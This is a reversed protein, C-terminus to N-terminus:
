RFIGYKAPSHGTPVNGWIWLSTLKRTPIKKGEKNVQFMPGRNGSMRSVFSIQRNMWKIDDATWESFSKQRMRLIARASDRGSKIGLNSADQRSLGAEKGTDSDIFKKLTPSPMNVLEKWRAYKEKLEDVSENIGVSEWVMKDSASDKKFGLGSYISALADGGIEGKQQPYLTLSIGKGRARSQLFRILRSAGGSKRPHSQIWAIEAVGKEKTPELEFVVTIPNEEDGFIAVRQSANLPNRPFLSNVSNVWQKVAADEKPVGLKIVEQILM